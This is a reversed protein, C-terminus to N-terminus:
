SDRKRMCYLFWVEAIIFNYPTPVIHCAREGALGTIISSQATISVFKTGSLMINMGARLFHIYFYLSFVILGKFYLDTISLSVRQYIGIELCFM